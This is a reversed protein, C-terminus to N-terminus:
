NPNSMKPPSKKEKPIYQKSYYIQPNANLMYHNNQSCTEIHLNEPFTAALLTSMYNIYTVM